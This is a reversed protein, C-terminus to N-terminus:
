NYAAIYSDAGQKIRFYIRDGGSQPIKEIREWDKGAYSIFLEKIANQMAEM